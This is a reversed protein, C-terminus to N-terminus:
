HLDDDEIAPGVDGEGVASQRVEDAVDDGVLARQQDRRGFPEALAEVDGHADVGVDNADVADARVIRTRSRWVPIVRVSRYSANTRDGPAAGIRGGSGPTSRGPTKATRLMGSERRIRAQIASRRALVATM